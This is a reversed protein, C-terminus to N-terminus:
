TGTTGVGGCGPGLTGWSERGRSSNSSVKRLGGPQKNEVARISSPGQQCECERMMLKVSGAALSFPSQSLLAPSSLLMLVSVRVELSARGLMDGAQCVWFISMKRGCPGPRLQHSGRLVVAERECSGPGHHQNLFACIHVSGSFCFFRIGNVKTHLM